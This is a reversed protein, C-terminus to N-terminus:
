ASFDVTARGAAEVRLVSWEADLEITLPVDVMGNMTGHWVPVREVEGDDDGVIEYESVDLEFSGFIRADAAAIRTGDDRSEVKLDELELIEVQRLRLDQREWPSRAKESAVIDFGQAFRVLSAAVAENTLYPSLDQELREVLEQTAPVFALLRELLVKQNPAVIVDAGFERVCVEALHKDGTAVVIPQLLEREEVERQVCRLVLDDAAGTKVGDKREGTGTQLVQARVAHRFDGDNAWAVECGAPMNTLIRDILEDVSACVPLTPADMLATDVQFERVAKSLESHDRAAHEAWEWVVVEPVVLVVGRGEVKRALAVLRDRDFRGRGAFNSDLIVRGM